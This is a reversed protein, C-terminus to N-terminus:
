TQQIFVATIVNLIAFGALCRYALFVFAYGEGCYKVLVRCTPAFNALHVEFMTIQTRSFTGFYSFLIQRGQIDRDPDTIIDQVLQSLIMGALCQVLLLLLVSWSLTSVSAAISKVLINLSEGASSSKLLRLGRAVKVIRFMRLLMPNVFSNAQAAWDFWSVVVCLIDIWNM